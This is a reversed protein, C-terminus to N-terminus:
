KGPFVFLPTADVAARSGRRRRRMPARPKEPPLDELEVVRFRAAVGGNKLLFELMEQAVNETPCTIRSRWETSGPDLSEIRYQM